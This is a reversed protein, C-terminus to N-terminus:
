VGSIRRHSRMKENTAKRIYYQTIPLKNFAVYGFAGIILVIAALIFYVLAGYYDNEPKLANPPFILLCIARMINIIIGCFGNGFMVGGMYKFPLM